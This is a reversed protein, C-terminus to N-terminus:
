IVIELEARWGLAIPSGGGSKRVDHRGQGRSANPGVKGTSKQAPATPRFLIKPSAVHRNPWTAVSNYHSIGQVAVLTCPGFDIVHEGAASPRGPGSIPRDVAM